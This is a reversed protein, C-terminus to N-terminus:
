RVLQFEPLMLVAWLTDEIKQETLSDGLEPALANWEQPTPNRSLAHQWLWQVFHHPSDWSRATLKKAGRSLTDALTEGNSLDIAELTTLMEPRVSVIQDRNPRGLSKMLVDNKVLSTRVTLLSSREAHDSLSAVVADLRNSWVAHQTVAVAPRWDTAEKKYKGNGDPLTRTFEWAGNTGLTQMEGETTRAHFLAFLGAPNPEAGGNKAVILIDNAGARLRNTILVAQPGLWNDGADARGGNIFLTYSNDCSVIAVAQSPSGKLKWTTRFAAAEKESAAMSNSATWIWHPKDNAPQLADAPHLRATEDAMAFAEPPRAPHGRLFTADFRSPAAATLQWVSDMFQEATLRKARPGAYVFGADDTTQTVVQTQSQYAQSTVILELSRKLDYQQAVLESALHDLLDASWPETQM